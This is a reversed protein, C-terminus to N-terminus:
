TLADLFSTAGAYNATSFLPWGTGNPHAGDASKGSLYLMTSTDMVNATENGFLGKAAYISEISNYCTRMQGRGTADIADWGFGLWVRYPISGLDAINAALDSINQGSPDGIGKGANWNNITAGELFVAPPAGLETRLATFLQRIEISSLGQWALQVPIYRKVATEWSEGWPGGLGYKGLFSDISGYGQAISDGVIWPNIYNNSLGECQITINPLVGASFGTYTHPTFSVSPLNLNQQIAWNTGSLGPGYGTSRGVGASEVGWCRREAGSAVEVCIEFDGTLGTADISGIWTHTPSTSSGTRTINVPSGIVTKYGTALNETLTASGDRQCIYLRKVTWTAGNTNWAGFRITKLAQGSYLHIPITFAEDASSTSHLNLGGPSLFVSNRFASVTSSARSFSVGVGVGVSAPM